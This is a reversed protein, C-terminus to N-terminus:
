DHAISHFVGRLDAKARDETGHEQRCVVWERGRGSRSSTSRKRRRFFQAFFSELPVLLFPQVESDSLPKFARLALHSPPRAGQKRHHQAQRAVGHQHTRAAPGAASREGRGWSAGPRLQPAPSSSSPHRRWGSPPIPTHGVAAGGPAVHVWQTPAGAQM